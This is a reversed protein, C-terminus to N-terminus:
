GRHVEDWKSLEAQIEAEIPDSPPAVPGARPIEVSVSNIRGPSTTEIPDPLGTILAQRPRVPEPADMAAWEADHRRDQADEQDLQRQWEKLQELTMTSLQREMTSLQREFPAIVRVTPTGVGYALLKEVAWARMRPDSDRLFERLIKVPEGSNIFDACAALFNKQAEVEPLPARHTRPRLDRSGRPRGAGPRFGGKAM